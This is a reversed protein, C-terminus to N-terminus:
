QLHQSKCLLIGPLGTAPNPAASMRTDRRRHGRRGPTQCPGRRRGWRCLLYGMLLWATAAM